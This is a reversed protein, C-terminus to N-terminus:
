YYLNKLIETQCCNNFTTRARYKITAPLIYYGSYVDDNIVEGPDKGKAYFSIDRERTLRGLWKLFRVM